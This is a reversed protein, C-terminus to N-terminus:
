PTVEGGRALRNEICRKLAKRVRMLAASVTNPLQDLREGIEAPRLNQLYCLDLLKRQRPPLQEICYTLAAQREPVDREADIAAQALSDIAESTLVLRDRKRDRWLERIRFRAVTISWATFSTGAEFEHFHRAVYEGTAQIVDDFDHPDRVLARVFAELSPMATSWLNALRVMAETQEPAPPPPKPRDM